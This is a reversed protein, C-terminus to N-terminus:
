WCEGAHYENCVPCPTQAGRKRPPKKPNDPDDTTGARAPSMPIDPNVERLRILYARIADRLAPTMSLDLVFRVTRAAYLAKTATPPVEGRYVILWNDYWAQVNEVTTMGRAAIQEWTLGEDLGVLIDALRTHTQCELRRLEAQQEPTWTTM